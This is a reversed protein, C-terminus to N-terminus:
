RDKERVLPLSVEARAGAEPVLEFSGGLLSVREKMSSL